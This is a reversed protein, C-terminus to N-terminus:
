SYEGRTVTARIVKYESLASWVKLSHEGRPNSSDTAHSCAEQGGGGGAGGGALYAHHLM